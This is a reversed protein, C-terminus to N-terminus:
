IYYITEIENERLARSSYTILKRCRVVGHTLRPAVTRSYSETWCFLFIDLLDPTARPGPLLERCLLGPTTNPVVTNDTAMKAQTQAQSYREADRAFSCRSTSTPCCRQISWLRFITQQITQQIRASSIPLCSRCSPASHAAIWSGRTDDFGKDDHARCHSGALLGLPHLWPSLLGVSNSYLAIIFNPFVPM